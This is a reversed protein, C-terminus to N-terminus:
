CSLGAAAAPPSPSSRHLPFPAPEDWEYLTVELTNLTRGLLAAIPFPIRLFLQVSHTAARAACARIRQALETVLASGVEAPISVRHAPNLRMTQAYRGHHGPIYNAFSDGRPQAPVLDM